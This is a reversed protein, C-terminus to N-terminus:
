YTWGVSVSGRKGRSVGPRPKWGSRFLKLLNHTLCVLNWEAEVNKVGRLSFSRFGRVSKIQGFVPEVIAKRMRYLDNGHPMRLKHRMRDAASANPPPPPKGGDELPAAGHKTKDPPVLVNVGALLPDKIADEAFFGADASLNDPLRGMNKAIKRTMPVLQRKDNAEQTIRKAIIIQAYSDVAIQTNYAQMFSKTAADKMIRSDPDTFNRQAKQDPKAKEPDPVQPMRGRTKKGTEEEKRKRRALMARAEKAKREAKARAEKELAQRAERIKELRRERRQLEKPLEDGRVGKGFKADEEEDVRQARAILESIEHLIRDEAEDMRGYSMAKHKSANAKVKSGDLSVHGMKVLGAERCLDLIQHFFTKLSEKHRTRFSAITDHDPHTDGTLVRFPVNEWTACEIKRSSFVGRTYAYFLLRVMMRPDYPPQGRDYQSEYSQYIMSLDLEDVVDSVFLSMHGEPVWERM